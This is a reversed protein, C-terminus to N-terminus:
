EPQSQFANQIADNEQRFSELRSNLNQIHPDNVHLNGFRNIFALTQRLQDIMESQLPPNGIVVDFIPQNADEEEMTSDPDSDSDSFDTQVAENVRNNLRRWSM